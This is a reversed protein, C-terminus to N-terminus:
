RAKTDEKEVKPQWSRLLLFLLFFTISLHLVSLPFYLRFPSHPFSSFLVPSTHLPKPLYLYPLTSCPPPLSSSVAFSHNPFCAFSLIPHTTVSSLFLFVIAQPHLPISSKVLFSACLLILFFFYKPFTSFPLVSHPTGRVHFSHDYNSLTFLPFSQAASLYLPPSIYRM